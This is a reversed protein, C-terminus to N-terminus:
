LERSNQPEESSNELKLGRLQSSCKSHPTGRGDFQASASTSGDQTMEGANKFHSTTGGSM